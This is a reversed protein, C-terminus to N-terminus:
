VRKNIEALLSEAKEETLGLQEAQPFALIARLSMGRAMAIMPNDAVGPMHQDLVKKAQPDDLIDGLTTDLTYEDM